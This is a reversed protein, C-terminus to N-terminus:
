SRPYFREYYQLRLDLLWNKSLHLVVDLLFVCLKTHLWKVYWLRFLWDLLMTVNNSSPFYMSSMFFNDNAFLVGPTKQPERLLQELDLINSARSREEPWSIRSSFGRHQPFHKWCRFELKAQINVLRFTTIGRVVFETQKGSMKWLLFEPLHNWIQTFPLNITSPTMGSFFSRSM